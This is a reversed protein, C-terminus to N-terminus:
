KNEKNQSLTSEVVITKEFKVNPNDVSECVITTEGVGGKNQMLQAVTAM